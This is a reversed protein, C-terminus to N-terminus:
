EAIETLQITNVIEQFGAETGGRLAVAYTSNGHAFVIEQCYEGEKEYVSHVAEGNLFSVLSSDVGQEKMYAAYDTLVQSVEGDLDNRMILVYEAYGGREFLWVDETSQASDRVFRNPVTLTIDHFSVDGNFPMNPQLPSQRSCATLGFLLCLALAILNQKKM